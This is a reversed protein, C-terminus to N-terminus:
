LLVGSVSGLLNQGIALSFSAAGQRGVHAKTYSMQHSEIFVVSRREKESKNINKPRASANRPTSPPPPRSESTFLFHININVAMRSKTPSLVIALFYVSLIDSVFNIRCIRCLITNNTKSCSLIEQSFKVVGVISNSNRIMATCGSTERVTGRRVSYKM